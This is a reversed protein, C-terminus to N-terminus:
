RLLFEAVADAAEALAQPHTRGSAKRPKLDHDGDECWFVESASPLAYSAVDEATGFPDRSGQIMLTPLHILPFHETRTKEPKGPPHFPYGLTILARVDEPCDPEAVLMSTARGGMSKGGIALKRLQVRGSTQAIASRWTELLIPMRNPPKRSGDVRRAAMYPFEFRVVGIGRASLLDAMQEMFPSDMPAGAGHAIVYHAAADVPGTVIFNLQSTM